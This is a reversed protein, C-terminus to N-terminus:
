KALLFLIETPVYKRPDVGEDEGREHYGADSKREEDVSFRDDIEWDHGQLENQM